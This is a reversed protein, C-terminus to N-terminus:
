GSAPDDRRAMPGTVSAPNDVTRVEARAGQVASLGVVVVGHVAVGVFHLAIVSAWVEWVDLEFRSMFLSFAVAGTFLLGMLPLEAWLAVWDLGDCFMFIAAINRIASLPTGYEIGFLSGGITLAIVATPVAIILGVLSCLILFTTPIDKFDKSTSLGAAGVIMLVFGIAFLTGTVVWERKENEKEERERELDEEPTSYALDRKKRKKNRVRPEASGAEAADDGEVTPKRKSPAAIEEGVDLERAADKRVPLAEGSVGYPTADEDEEDWPRRHAPM